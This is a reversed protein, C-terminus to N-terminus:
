YKLQTLLLQADAYDKKLIATGNPGPSHALAINIDKSYTQLLDTMVSQYTSDFTGAAAANTLQTDTNKSVKGSIQVATFQTGSDKLYTTLNTLASTLSAKITVASNNTATSKSAQLGTATAVHVLAQQDQAVAIFYASTSPKATVSKVITVVIMVLVLAGGILIVKGLLSGGPLAFKKKPPQAPNTIFSYDPQVANPDPYPGQTPQQPQM